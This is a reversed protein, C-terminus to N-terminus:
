GIAMSGAGTACAGTLPQLTRGLPSLEYDVRPPVEAYVTRTVLGLRELKRLTQALVKQSVGTLRRELANFRAPGDDLAYLCLLAWKNGIADVLQRVPAQQDLTCDQPSHVDLLSVEPDTALSSTGEQRILTTSWYPEPM